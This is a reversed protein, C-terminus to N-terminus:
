LTVMPPCAQRRSNPWNEPSIFINSSKRLLLSMSSGLANITTTTMVPVVLLEAKAVNKEAIDALETPELGIADFGKGILEATLDGAGCGIDLIRTPKLYEVVEIIKNHIKICEPAREPSSVKYEVQQM